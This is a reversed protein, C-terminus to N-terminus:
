VKQRYAKILKLSLLERKNRYAFYRDYDEDTGQYVITAQIFDKYQPVPFGLTTHIPIRLFTDGLLLEAQVIADQIAGETNDPDKGLNSLGFEYLVLDCYEIQLNGPNLLRTETAKVQLWKSYEPPNYVRAHRGQVTARPRQKSLIEGQYRLTILPM